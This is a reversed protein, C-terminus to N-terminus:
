RSTRFEVVAEEHGDSGRKADCIVAGEQVSRRRADPTLRPDDAFLVETILTRSDGGGSGIEVHIHAPLTSEPYGAPRITRVEFRGHQDSLAYGFLRAHQEDGSFGSFHGGADSYWGKASTQYVYVRAGALPRGGRDLVTGKLTLRQGPEGPTVITLPGQTAHDRLALRFRPWPHLPLYKPDGLIGSTTARGSKLAQSVQDIAAAVERTEEGPPAVFRAPTQAHALWPIAAIALAAWPLFLRRRM